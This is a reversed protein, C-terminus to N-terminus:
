KIPLRVMFTTGKGVESEVTILGGHEEILAKSVTLGLGIGKLKTMFQPEFIKEMNEQPIGIGTDEVHVYVYGDKWATALTLKGGEPMVQIANNVLNLFVQRLKGADAHILPLDVVLQQEVEIDDPLLIRLLINKLMENVNLEQLYLKGKRWYYLLDDIIKNCDAVAGEMLKLHKAVKEDVDSQVLNLYYVSNRIVSLPNRLEHGVSAILNGITILRDSVQLQAEYEAAKTALLLTYEEVEQEHEKRHTIDRAFTQILKEDALEIVNANIEVPILSGNKRKHVVEYTQAGTEVIQSILEMTRRAHEESALDSMSMSLFEEESYGFVNCATSNVGRIKGLLDFILVSDPADEFLQRYKEAEDLSLAHKYRESTDKVTALLTPLYDSKEMVSGNTSGYMTKVIVRDDDLFTTIIVPVKHAGVTIMAVQEFIDANSLVHELLLLDYNNDSFTELVADVSAVTEVLYVDSHSELFEKSTFQQSPVDTALLINIKKMTRRHAVM